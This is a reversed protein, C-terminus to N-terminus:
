KKSNNNILRDKIKNSINIPSLGFHEYLDQAPASAGFNNMGFFLGDRGIFYDWSQRVAAEIAVKLSDNNLLQDIYDQPQAFFIQHCPVSIIRASIQNKFLIKQVELAISVESGSAFITVAPEGIAESLIYAGKASLNNKSFDRIIPLDQRTLSFLSPSNKVNIAIEYCEAVEVADAPRFVYLNPIARLSSLHEVPQHTPGDEGLGISDHTMIYFVQLHMLASLRIAARCYDSFVLFTGGFPIFKGELAIGNMIACMAHERVGYYIYNGSFDEKSIPNFFSPKTNNSGSLDASGCILNSFQSALAEIAMGSAKRTSINKMKIFDNKLNNFNWAGLSSNITKNKNSSEVGLSRWLSLIEDPIEFAEYPWNLTKRVEEVEKKGLAAGHCVEKGAKNPSGYGIITRCSILVPKDSKKAKALAERIEDYNHGDIEEVHWGASVFRTSTDESITLSTPGDISIKNDDFLVILRKLGLHGAISISEQSIGEMLCGDGVIVYTYHPSYADDRAACLEDSIAMGVANALGQGLPGTTTEVAELLGYEPHGATKSHLQRFNKIDDLTIDQYGTLYLISYLLMSGHGASLIFRDRGEWKPNKPDFKLFESFLITAVDAMGMPMGPHGSNAKEVADISLFRIANAMLRYKSNDM